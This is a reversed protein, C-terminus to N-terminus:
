QLCREVEKPRGLVLYNGQNPDFPDPVSGEFYPNDTANCM